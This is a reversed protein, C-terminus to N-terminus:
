YYKKKVIKLNQRNIIGLIFSIPSINVFVALIEKFYM